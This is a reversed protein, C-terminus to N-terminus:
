TKENIPAFFFLGFLGISRKHRGHKYTPAIEKYFVFESISWYISLHTQIYLLICKERLFYYIMPNSAIKM